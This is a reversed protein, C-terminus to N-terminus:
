GGFATMSVYALSLGVGAGAAVDTPYHLGLVLRSLAVLVAFPTVVWFLGPFYSVAVTSFAVAHLTHGSPFSYRDLPETGLRISGHTVFPRQRVTRSKLFKYILVGSLAVLGMHLSARMGNSGYVAPIVAMLGYWFSGNGLWSVWSFFRELLDRRAFRNFIMCVSGEYADMRRFITNTKVQSVTPVM